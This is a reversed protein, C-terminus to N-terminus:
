RYRRIREIVEYLDWKLLKPGRKGRDPNFPRPITGNKSWRDITGPSVGLSSALEERNVLQTLKGNVLIPQSKLHSFTALISTLNRNLVFLQQAILRIDGELASHEGASVALSEEITSPHIGKESVAFDGHVM